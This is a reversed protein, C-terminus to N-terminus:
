HSLRPADRLMLANIPDLAAARLERTLHTYITTTSLAAHGLYDQILALPVGAELLHTAYCHRLTHVHARKVIGSRAVAAAFAKQLSTPGVPGAALTPGQRRARESAPFMWEPHRHTRWFARLMTLTADPLPVLRDKGGKGQHVHVLKRAGDVDPVRLQTGELLRLGCAYITTLCAQYAPHTIADLVRWVEDRSLVVPLKQERRPRVFELLSWPRQLTEQYLFKIGCLAVTVSSRALKRHTSLHLFYERLQEESLRDPPTHFHRALQSVARLYSTMTRASYGRLQLDETMRQRLPTM